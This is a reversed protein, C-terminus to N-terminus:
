GNVAAGQEAQKKAARKEWYKKNYEKVKDKNNARWQKFYERKAETVAAADIAKVENM